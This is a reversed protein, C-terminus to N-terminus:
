KKRRAAIRKKYILYAVEIAYRVGESANGEGMERAQREHRDSVRHPRVALPGDQEYGPSLKTKNM